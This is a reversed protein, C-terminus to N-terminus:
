RAGRGFVIIPITRLLILLDFVLSRKQIYQLDLEIMEEIGHEWDRSVQWLGTLGPRVTTREEYKKSLLEWEYPLFPRPGVLSMDGLLVGFIQPLEDLSTKRLFRGISTVRIDNRMRFLDTKKDESRGVAENLSELFKEPDASLYMTRFKYFDFLNGNKGIRLQRYFVPGPSELKILLSVILLPPTLLVIAIFSGTIDIVRKFFEYFTHTARNKSEIRHLSSEKTKKTKDIM